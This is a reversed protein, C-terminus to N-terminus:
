GVISASLGGDAGTSTELESEAVSLVEQMHPDVWKGMM